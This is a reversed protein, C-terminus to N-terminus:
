AKQAVTTKLWIGVRICGHACVQLRLIVHHCCQGGLERLGM